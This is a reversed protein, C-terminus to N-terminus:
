QNTNAIANTLDYLKGEGLPNYGNRVETGDDQGDGDSDPKLPDTKYVKAEERDFLGDGDSDAKSTDTGIKQEDADTLGDGDTDAVVANVANVTSVNVPVATDNGSAGSQAPTTQPASDATDKTFLGGRWAALAGAALLVVALAIGAAMFRRNGFFVRGGAGASSAAPLPRTPPASNSGRGAMGGAPKKVGARDTAEFIDEIKKPANAM